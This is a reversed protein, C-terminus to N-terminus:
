EAKLSYRSRSTSLASLSVAMQSGVTYFIHSGRRRVDRHAEVAQKSAKSVSQGVKQLEAQLLNIYNINCLVTSKLAHSSNFKM